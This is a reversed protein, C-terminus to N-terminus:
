SNLVGTQARRSISASHSPCSASGRLGLEKRWGVLETKHGSSAFDRPSNRFAVQFSQNAIM